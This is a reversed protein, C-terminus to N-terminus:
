LNLQEQLKALLEEAMSKTLQAPDITAPKIRNCTKTPSLVIIKEDALERDAAEYAKKARTKILRASILKCKLQKIETQISVCTRFADHRIAQLMLKSEESLM